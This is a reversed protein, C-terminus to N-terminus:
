GLEFTTVGFVRHLDLAPETGRYMRATEFTPRLGIGEALAVARTNPTPVDLFVPGRPVSVVLAALLHAAAVDDHCFLPGIKHGSRCPRIVGYGEVDGPAGVARGVSGPAAIWRELFQQRAAAECEGLLATVNTGHREITM